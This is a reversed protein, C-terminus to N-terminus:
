ADAPEKHAAAALERTFRALDEMVVPRSVDRASLRAVQRV